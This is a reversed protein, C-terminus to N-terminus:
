VRLCLLQFLPGGGCWLETPTIPNDQATNQDSGSPKGQEKKAWGLVDRRGQSQGRLLAPHPEGARVAPQVGAIGSHSRSHFCSRILQSPPLVPRQLRKRLLRVPMMRTM